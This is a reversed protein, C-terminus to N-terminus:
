IEIKDIVRGPVGVVVSGPPVDRTVVTGSGIVSQRGVRVGPLITSNAGISAKEEIIVGELGRKRPDKFGIYKDNTLVANPGLFVNDEIVSYTPIYVGSQISVNKGIKCHNEVIVNSGILSNEGIVSEERVLYHHGTKVGVALKTKSYIIGFARLVCNNGVETGDIDKLASIELSGVSSLEERSPYGIIVNDAILTGEGIKSKGYITYM